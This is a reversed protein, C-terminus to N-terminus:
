PDRWVRKSHYGNICSTLTPTMPNPLTPEPVRAIRVSFASGMAWLNPKRSPEPTQLGETCAFCRRLSERRRAPCGVPALHNRIGFRRLPRAPRLCRPPRSRPFRSRARFDTTVVKLPISPWARAPAKPFLNSAPMLRVMFRPTAPPMQNVGHPSDPRDRSPATRTRLPVAGVDQGISRVPVM